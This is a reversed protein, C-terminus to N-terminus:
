CTELTDYAGACCYKDAPDYSPSNTGDTNGWHDMTLKSCPSYCGGYEETTPNEVELDTLGLTDIEMAPCIYESLGACDIDTVIGECTYAIRYPLTWGDM